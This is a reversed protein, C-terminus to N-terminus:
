ESDSEPMLEPWRVAWLNLLDILADTKGLQSAFQSRVYDQGENTLDNDLLVECVKCHEPSDLSENTETVLVCTSVDWVRKEIMPQQNCYSCEATHETPVCDSCWHGDTFDHGYSVVFAYSM